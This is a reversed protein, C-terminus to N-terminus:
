QNIEVKDFTVTKSKYKNSIFWSIFSNLGNNNNRARNKPVYM